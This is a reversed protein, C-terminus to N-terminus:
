PVFHHKLWTAMWSAGGALVAVGGLMYSQRGEIKRIRENHGDMRGTHGKLKEKINDFGEEVKGQLQGIALIIDDSNHKTM